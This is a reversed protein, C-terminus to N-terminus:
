AAQAPREGSWAQSEKELTVLNKCITGYLMNDTGIKDEVISLASRYHRGAGFRDGQRHYVLGLNNLIKAEYCVSGVARVQALACLLKEKAELVRGQNLDEMGSRNLQGAQAFRNKCCM